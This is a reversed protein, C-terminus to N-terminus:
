QDRIEALVQDGRRIVTFRYLRGDEWRWVHRDIRIPEAADMPVDINVDPGARVSIMPPVLVELPIASPQQAPAPDRPQLPVVRAASSAGRESITTREYDMLSRPLVAQADDRYRAPVRALEDTFAVSGSETEFRYYSRAGQEPAPDTQQARATLPAALMLLVLSVAFGQM